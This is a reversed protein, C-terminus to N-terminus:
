KTYQKMYLSEINHVHVHDGSNVDKTTIGIPVGYKKVITGNPLEKLAMKHGFSIDSTACIAEKDIIIVDGKSLNSIVIGVNDEPNLTIVKKNSM